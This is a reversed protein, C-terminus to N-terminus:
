RCQIVKVPRLEKGEIIDAMGLFVGESYVKYFQSLERIREMLPYRPDEQLASEKYLRYKRPGTTMGNSFARVRDADLEIEAYSSITADPHQVHAEIEEDSMELLEDLGAAEDISFVGSQTRELSTMVAGCGIAAGIDDCITRIYTGKSCCIELELTNEDPDQSIIDISEIYVNRSKIEVEEGSRAYEYLRKGNVRVASYKPPIQSILGRFNDLVAPIREFVDAPVEKTELVEGTIDLTDTTIGFRLVARYSKFDADYYEVIRTAKGVCVPLVGTAMPDLTGTHGIRKTGLRRRLRSVVDHSTMGAPKNINIVGDILM